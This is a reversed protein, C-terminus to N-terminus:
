FRTKSDRKINQLTDYEINNIFLRNEVIMEIYMENCMCENYMEIVIQNKNQLIM